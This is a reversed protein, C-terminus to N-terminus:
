NVKLLTLGHIDYGLWKVLVMKNGRVKKRKLIKEVKYVDDKKDISSLQEEYFKGTILEGELDELECVNLGM